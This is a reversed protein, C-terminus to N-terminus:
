FYAKKPVLVQYHAGDLYTTLVEKEGNRGGNQVVLRLLGGDDGSCKGMRVDLYPMREVDHDMLAKADEFRDMQLLGLFEEMNDGEVRGWSTFHLWDDDSICYPQKIQGLGVIVPYDLVIALELLYYLGTLTSGMNNGESDGSGTRSVSM